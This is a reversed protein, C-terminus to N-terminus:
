CCRSGPREYRARQQDRVFEDHTLLRGAARRARHHALYREYDPAGVITRTARAAAAIFSSLARGAARATAASRAIMRTGRGIM